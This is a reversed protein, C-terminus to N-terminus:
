EEGQHLKMFSECETPRDVLGCKKRMHCDVRPCKPFREALTQQYRKYVRGGRELTPSKKALCARCPQIFKMEGSRTAQFRFFEETMPLERGCDKCVMTPVSPQPQEQEPMPAPESAQEEAHEQLDSLTAPSYGVLREALTQLAVTIDAIAAMYGKRRADDLMKSFQATIADLDSM